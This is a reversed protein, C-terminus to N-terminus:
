FNWVLSTVWRLGPDPKTAYAQAGRSTWFLTSFLQADGLAYGLGASAYSGSRDAVRRLDAYGVGLHLSWPATLPQQYSSEVYSVFDRRLNGQASLGPSDASMSLALRWRGRWGIAANLENYRMAQSWFNWPSQYHVAGLKASWDPNLRWRRDVYATLQAAARQDSPREASAAIGVVWDHDAVYHLDAMWAPRGETLSSGRYVNDTSIGLLGGWGAAFANSCLLLWLM